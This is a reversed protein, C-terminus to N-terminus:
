FKNFIDLSLIGHEYRTVTVNFRISHLEQTDATCLPWRAAEEALLARIDVVNETESANHVDLIRVFEEQVYCLIGENYYIFEGHGLLVVSHPRALAYRIRTVFARQVVTSYSITGQEALGAEHSFRICGKTQEAGVVISSVKNRVVKVFARSAEEERLVHFLHKRSNRLNVYDELYIYSTIDILIDLPMESISPAM